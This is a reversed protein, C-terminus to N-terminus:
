APIAVSERAEAVWQNLELRHALEELVKPAAEVYGQGLRRLGRKPPSVVSLGLEVSKSSWPLVELQVAVSRRAKDTWLRGEARRYPWYDLRAPVLHPRDLDLRGNVSEVERRDADALADFAARAQSPTLNVVRSIFPFANEM